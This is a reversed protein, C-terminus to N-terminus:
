LRLYIMFLIMSSYLTKFTSLLKLCLRRWAGGSIGDVAVPVEDDAVEEEDEAVEDDLLPEVFSDTACRQLIPDDRLINGAISRGKALLGAISSDGCHAVAPFSSLLRASLYPWIKYTTPGIDDLQEGKAAGRLLIRHFHAAHSSSFGRFANLTAFDEEVVANRRGGDDLRPLGHLAQCPLLELVQLM